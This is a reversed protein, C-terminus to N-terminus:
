LSGSVKRVKKRIHLTEDGPSTGMGRGEEVGAGGGRGVGNVGESTRENSGSYLTGGAGSTSYASVTPQFQSADFNTYDADPPVGTLQQIARNARNVLTKAQRSLIVEILEGRSPNLSTGLQRNKTYHKLDLITLRQLQAREIVPSTFVSCRRCVHPSRPPHHMCTTCFHLQCHTCTQVVYLCM